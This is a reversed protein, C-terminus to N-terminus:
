WKITIYHLRQKFARTIKRKEMAKATIPIKSKQLHAWNDMHAQTSAQNTNEARIIDPSNLETQVAGDNPGM